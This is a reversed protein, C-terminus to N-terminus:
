ILYQSHDLFISHDIICLSYIVFLYISYFSLCIPILQAYFSVKTILGDISVTLEDSSTPSHTRHLKHIPRNRAVNRKTKGMAQVAIRLHM